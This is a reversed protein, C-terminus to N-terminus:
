SEGLLNARAQRYRQALSEPCAGRTTLNDIIDALKVTLAVDGARKIRAIYNFYPEQPRRTLHFVALITDQCFGLAALDIFECHTDEIIDHLWAVTQEGYTECRAAVRKAHEFTPEDYLLRALTKARAFETNM